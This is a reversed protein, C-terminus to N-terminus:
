EGVITLKLFQNWKMSFPLYFQNQQYRSRELEIMSYPTPIIRIISIGAV